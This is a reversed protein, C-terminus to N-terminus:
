VTEGIDDEEQGALKPSFCVRMEKMDKCCLLAFADSLVQGGPEGESRPLQLRQQGESDVFASLFGTVLQACVNFKQEQSMLSLMFRYIMQRRQPSAMLNFQKNFSAGQYKPHGTWGNLVCIVGVFDYSFVAPNRKHLINTFLCEVLNRIEEAPDSLVYLVRYMLCGRFKVFSESLLSAFVMVTQKRLLESPDRLLSAM